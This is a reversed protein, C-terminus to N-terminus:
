LMAGFTGLIIAGLTNDLAPLAPPNAAVATEEM